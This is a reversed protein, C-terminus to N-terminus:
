EEMQSERYKKLGLAGGLAAVGVFLLAASATPDATKPTEDSKGTNASAVATTNSSSNNSPSEDGATVVTKEKKQKKPLNEEIDVDEEEGIDDVDEEEGIDDVDEEGIVTEDEEEIDEGIVSIEADNVTVNCTKVSNGLVATITASGVGMGTVTGASDVSAVAPNSSTWSVVTGTTGENITFGITDSQGVEISLSEAMSEIVSEVVVEEQAFSAPGQVVALSLAAAMAIAIKKKNKM